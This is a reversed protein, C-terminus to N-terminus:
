LRYPYREQLEAVLAIVEQLRDAPIACEAAGCTQGDRDIGSDLLTEMAAISPNM